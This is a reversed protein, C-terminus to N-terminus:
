TWYIRSIITLVARVEINQFNLSIRDGTYDIKRGHQDVGKGAKLPEINIILQKGSHYALQTYKGKPMIKLLVHNKKQALLVTNVPTAFDTVDLLKHLGKALTTNVFDVEIHKGHQEIKNNTQRHQLSIIM